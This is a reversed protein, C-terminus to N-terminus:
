IHARCMEHGGYYGVCACLSCPAASLIGRLGASDWDAQPMQETDRAVCEHLTCAV